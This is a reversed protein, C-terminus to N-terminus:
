LELWDLHNEIFDIKTTHTNLSEAIIKEDKEMQNAIDSSLALGYKTTNEKVIIEGKENIDLGVNNLTSTKLTLVNVNSSAIDLDELPDKDDQQVKVSLNTFNLEKKGEDSKIYDLLAQVGKMSLGVSPDSSSIQDTLQSFYLDRGVLSFKRNKFDIVIDSLTAGSPRQGTTTYYFSIM